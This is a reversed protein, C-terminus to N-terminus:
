KRKSDDNASGIPMQASLKWISAHGINVALIVCVYKFMRCFGRRTVRDGFLLWAMIKPPRTPQTLQTGGQQHLIKLILSFYQIARGFRVTKQTDIDFLSFAQEEFIRGNERMVQLLCKNCTSLMSLLTVLDRLKKIVFIDWLM